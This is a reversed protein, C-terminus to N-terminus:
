FTPREQQGRIEIASVSPFNEEAEEAEQELWIGTSAAWALCSPSEIKWEMAGNLVSDPASCKLEGQILLSMCTNLLFHKLLTSLTFLQWVSWVDQACSRKREWFAAPLVALVSYKECSIIVLLCLGLRRYLAILSRRLGTQFVVAELMIVQALNGLM